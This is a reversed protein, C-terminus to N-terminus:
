SMDKQIAVAFDNGVNKKRISMVQLQFIVYIELDATQKHKKEPFNNTLNPVKALSEVVGQWLIGCILVSTSDQVDLVLSRFFHFVFFSQVQMKHQFRKERVLLLNANM